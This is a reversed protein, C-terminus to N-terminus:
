WCSFADIIFWLIWHNELLCGFLIGIIFWVVSRLSWFPWTLVHWLMVDDLVFWEFCMLGRLAVLFCWLYLWCYDCLNEMLLQFADFLLWLSWLLDRDADSPMLSLDCCGITRWRAVLSYRLLLDCYQDFVGFHDLWFMDCLSMMLFLDCVEIKKFCSSSLDFIVSRHSM